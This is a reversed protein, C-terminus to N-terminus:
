RYCDNDLLLKGKSLFIHCVTAKQFGSEEFPTIKGPLHVLFQM